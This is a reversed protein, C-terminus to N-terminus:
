PCNEQQFHFTDFIDGATAVVEVRRTTMPEEIEDFTFVVNKDTIKVEFWDNKYAKRNENTLLDQHEGNVIVDALWPTYNKCEFTFTGGEKPIVYINNVKSLNDINKWKMKDWKGDPEDINCSTLGILTVILLIYLKSLQNMTAM